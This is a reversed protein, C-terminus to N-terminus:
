VVVPHTMHRPVSKWIATACFHSIGSGCFNECSNAITKPLKKSIKCTKSNFFKLKHDLVQWFIQILFPVNPMGRKENFIANFSRFSPQFNGNLAEKIIISHSSTINSYLTQFQKMFTVFSINHSQHYQYQFRWRLWLKINSVLYAPWICSHKLCNQPQM